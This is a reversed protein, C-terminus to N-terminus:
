IAPGTAVLIHAHNGTHAASEEQAAIAVISHEQVCEEGNSVKHYAAKSM